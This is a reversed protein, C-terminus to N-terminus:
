VEEKPTTVEVLERSLVNGVSMHDGKAHRKEVLEYHARWGSQPLYSAYVLVYEGGGVWAWVPWKEKSLLV